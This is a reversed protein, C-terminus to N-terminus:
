EEEEEEGTKLAKAAAIIKDAQLSPVYDYHDFEMSFSARGQTMSILDNQYSLMEAMPVQARIIQTTGKTDMGQIRGRRGNLDGMLDGAYEVPAQVEVNMIPELIAPKAQQMAAKFAKRAALKFAMESSDVDHYSGDYVTVKFDVVPYGALFGNAAAEVIGKEVAPIYQRPISGGFIENAFEFKGGRPLPEMRIWCDGFQGHGGTQKKHRGQVDAKGRITERYPIKPAKLEVDVSYRKKLRSVIVEVHQQGSGALLFEKTQPDRYFRLSQDEELIRSVANGLRDEDQRSKASIAFAISPEPLKVAPYSILSGKDALTDGTLTEKLKAVAGIDGAKLETLPQITKGMLSGIHALREAGSNRANVLNADNKVVGSMVKFYTVRGAFPDAVTKFVFASVPENDKIGRQVEQGNLTAIVPQHETPAPFNEVIFNLLADSGMNRLGSACLVPYIRRERIAQRLGTLIQEPELTGKDFYQEMLADNGEAVMEILAEHAKQAADARDAPIDSEKGKGDGDATYTYAKMRVLDILGKFDKEAGLPLQIPVAARGFIEHVSALARDFDSRERDLKNIIIARPLNFEDAFSWVKETQVEVGAVGDVLVLAADAAAMSAKTDNIFINFGPTDILNIKKKAWEASALATSISLKRQIEDDDFDTITNGEDVRTLRNTAGSTYLLAAALTTKGCHGHGILAVNRVDTGEYVKM